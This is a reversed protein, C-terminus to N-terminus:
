QEKVILANDQVGVVQVIKDKIIPSSSIAYYLKGDVEVTGGLDINTIANGTKSILAKLPNETNYTRFKYRNPNKIIGKHELITEILIAVALILAIISIIGIIQKFNFGDIRYSSVGCILLAIGFLGTLGVKPVFVEVVCLVVGASLLAITLWSINQFLGIIYQEM